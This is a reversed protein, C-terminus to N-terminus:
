FMTGGKERISRAVTTNAYLADGTVLRGELVLRELLAPLAGLENTTSDIVVTSLSVGLEHVMCGLLRLAPIGHQEDRSGRVTKGDIAVPELPVPTGGTVPLSRLVTNVWDTIAHVLTDYDILMLIRRITCYDPMRGFRFGLAASVNSELGASWAEIQRLSNQQAILAMVVLTLVGALSYRQGTKTRPDPVTQFVQYLSPVM